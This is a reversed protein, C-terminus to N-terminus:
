DHLRQSPAAEALRERQWDAEAEYTILVRRGARIERPGKGANRLNYYTAKCIEGNDKCFRKISKAGM